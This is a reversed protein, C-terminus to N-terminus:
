IQMQFLTRVASVASSITRTSMQIEVGAKASTIALQHPDINEGAAFRAMMDNAKARTASPGEVIMSKLTDGFSAGQSSSAGQVPAIGLGGSGGSAGGAGSDGGIDLGLGGGDGSMGSLSNMSPQGSTGGLGALPNAGAAGGVAPLGSMMM